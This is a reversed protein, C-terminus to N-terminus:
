SRDNEAADPGAGASSRGADPDDIRDACRGGREGGVAGVRAPQRLRSSQMVARPATTQGAIRASSVSRAAQLTGTELADPGGAWLARGTTWRRAARTVRVAARM